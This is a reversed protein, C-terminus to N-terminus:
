LWLPGLVVALLPIGFCSAVVDISDLPECLAVVDTALVSDIPLELTGIKGEVEVLVLVLELIAEDETGTGDLLLLAVPGSLM